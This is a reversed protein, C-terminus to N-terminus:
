FLTQCRFPFLNQNQHNWHYLTGWSILQKPDRQPVPTTQFIKEWFLSLDVDMKSLITSHNSYFCCTTLSSLYKVNTKVSKMFLQCENLKLIQQVVYWIKSFSLDYPHIKYPVGKNNNCMYRDKIEELLDVFWFRLVEFGAKGWTSTM